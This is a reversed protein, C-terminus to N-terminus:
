DFLSNEIMLSAAALLEAENSLTSFMIETQEAIRPICFENLAQQIAPLLMKGAKAGRGSLVIREPNLIHILTALGKGIQFAADALISIAM